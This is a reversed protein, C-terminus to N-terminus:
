RPDPQSLQEVTGIDSSDNGQVTNWMPPLVTEQLRRIVEQAEPDNRLQETTLGQSEM